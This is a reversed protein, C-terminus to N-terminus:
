AKYENIPTNLYKCMHENLRKAAHKLNGLVVDADYTKGDGCNFIEGLCPYMELQKRVGAYLEAYVIFLTYETEELAPSKIKTAIDNFYNEVEQTNKCNYMIYNVDFKYEM